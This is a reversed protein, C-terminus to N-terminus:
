GPPLIPGCRPGTELASEWRRLRTIPLAPSCPHARHDVGDVGRRSVAVSVTNKPYNRLTSCLGTSFERATPSTPIFTDTMCSFRARPSPTTPRATLLRAVRGTSALTRSLVSFAPSFSVAVLRSIPILQQTGPLTVSSPSIVTGALSRVSSTLESGFWRISRTKEALSRVRFTVQPPLREEILPISASSNGTTAAIPSVGM